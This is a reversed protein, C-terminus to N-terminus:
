CVFAVTDLTSWWGLDTWHRTLSRVCGLYARMAHALGDPVCNIVHKQTGFPAGM